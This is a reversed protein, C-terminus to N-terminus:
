LQKQVDEPLYKKVFDVYDKKADESSKGKLDNWANWKARGTPNFMGPKDINCDGVTAQKYLSYIKLKEENSFPDETLKKIETAAITFKSDM